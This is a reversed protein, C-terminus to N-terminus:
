GSTLEETVGHTQRLKEIEEQFSKTLTQKEEETMFSSKISSFTLEELERVTFDAHEIAAMYEQILNTKYLSPMESTINLPIAEDYLHRLPYEAYSQVQGLCLSHAMCVSLSIGQEVMLKIVDPSDATGWGDTIRNPQLRQIAELVEEGAFIDGVHVASLLEKKQATKFSREFEDLAQANERGSLGIGVVNGKRAATSSAWRIADDAKRPQDRPITLVWNIIVKWGQEVRNRGDNIAALFQEFTLGSELYLGPNVQVEAYRINQKALSVGLEYVLRTLDDPQQIWKSVTNILQDTKAYDPRDLLSVWNSFHKLTEPIDNQEAITLLSEKQFTGELQLGLEVKPMAQIYSEISM